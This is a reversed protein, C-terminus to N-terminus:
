SHSEKIIDLQLHSIDRTAKGHRKEEIRDTLIVHRLFKLQRMSKKINDAQPASIQALCRQFSDSFDYTSNIWLKKKKKKPLQSLPFKSGRKVSSVCVFRRIFCKLAKVNVMYERYLRRRNSFSVVAWVGAMTRLQCLIDVVFLQTQISVCM